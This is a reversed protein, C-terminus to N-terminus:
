PAKKKIVRKVVPKPAADEAAAVAAAPAPTPAPPPMAAENDGADEGEADSDEVEVSTTKPAAAAAVTKPPVEEAPPIEDNGEGSAIEAIPVHLRGAISMSNRPKAVCQFLKWTLGWGKGGIWIGTCKIVCAVQCQKPVFDIPTLDANTEDPFIKKSAMNYIEVDWKGNYFPVKARISPPKTYDTKKTDKNKPYKLFPFFTHKVVEKSMKEGWWVESNTVADNLIQEEFAKFKALMEDTAASKYEDNPFNLSISYKGDSKGTDDVYDAIGWTMMMPTTLYLLTNTQQSLLMISKAGKDNVKPSLYRNATVDWEAATLVVNKTTMTHAKIPHKISHKTVPAKHSHTHSHAPTFNIYTM